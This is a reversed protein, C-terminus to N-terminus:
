PITGAAIKVLRGTIDELSHPLPRISLEPRSFVYQLEKKSAISQVFVNYCTTVVVALHGQPTTLLVTHAGPRIRFIGLILNSPVM